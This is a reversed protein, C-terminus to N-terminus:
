KRRRAVEPFPTASAEGRSFFNRCHKSLHRALQGHIKNAAKKLATDVTEGRLAQQAYGLGDTVSLLYRDKRDVDRVRLVRSLVIAARSDVRELAPTNRAHTMKMLQTWARKGMVAFRMRRRNMKRAKTRADGITAAAIYVPENWERRVNERITPDWRFLKLPTKKTHRGAIVFRRGGMWGLRSANEYTEGGLRVVRHREGGASKWGVGGSSVAKVKVHGAKATRTAARLSKMCTIATAVVSDKVSEGLERQRRRILDALVSLPKGDAYTVRVSTM